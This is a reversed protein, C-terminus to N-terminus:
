LVFTLTNKIRRLFSTSKKVSLREFGKKLIAIYPTIKQINTLNLIM